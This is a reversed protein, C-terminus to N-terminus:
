HTEGDDNKGTAAPLGTVFRTVADEHATIHFTKNRDTAGATQRFTSKAVRMTRAMIAIIAANAKGKDPVSTVRVSMRAKGDATTVLGAIEDRAAKPTARVDLFLGAGTRRLATTM